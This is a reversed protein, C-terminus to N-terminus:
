RQEDYETEHQAADFDLAKIRVVRGTRVHLVRMTAPRRELVLADAGSRRHMPGVVQNLQVPDLAVAAGGNPFSHREGAM